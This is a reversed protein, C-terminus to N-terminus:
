RRPNWVLGEIRAEAPVDAFACRVVTYAMRRFPRPERQRVTRAAIIGYVTITRMVHNANKTM